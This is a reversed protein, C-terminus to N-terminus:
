EVRVREIFSAVGDSVSLYVTRGKGFGVISRNNPVLINGLSKGSRDIVEYTRNGKVTGTTQIWVNGDCDARVGGAVFPPLVDPLDTPSVFVLPPLVDRVGIAIRIPDEGMLPDLLRLKTMKASDCGVSKPPPEVPLKVRSVASRRTEELAHRASDIYAAKETATLRKTVPSMATSNMLGLPGIWDIRREDARVVVIRGDSTVTWADVIPIPNILPMVFWECSENHTYAMRTRASRLFTVTDESGTRLDYRILAASDAIAPLRLGGTAPGNRDNRSIRQAPMRCVIRGQADIGPIGTPGGLLCGYGEPIPLGTTRGLRGHDDIVSIVSAEPDVFLSSDGLWPILGSFPLNYRVRSLATTDAVPALYDLAGNFLSVSRGIRDQVLIHGNNLDRVLWVSEFHVRSRAEVAGLHGAAPPQAGAALLPTGL